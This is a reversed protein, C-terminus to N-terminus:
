KFGPGGDLVASEGWKGLLTNIPYFQDFALSNRSVLEAKGPTIIAIARYGDWKVEYVWGPDNFPEDILTAKMPKVKVPMKAVPAKKLLAEIDTSPTNSINQGAIDQAIQQKLQKATVVGTKM